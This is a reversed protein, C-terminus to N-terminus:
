RPVSSDLKESTPQGWGRAIGMVAKWRIQEDPPFHQELQMLARHGPHNEVALSVLRKAEGLDSTVRYREALELTLGAELVPAMRIGRSREPGDLYNLLLDAHDALPWSLVSNTFLALLMNEITPLSLDQRYRSVVASNDDLREEPSVALNFVCYLALFPLRDRRKMTEMGEHAQRLLDRLDTVPDKSLMSTVVQGCFAFLRKRGDEASFDGPRHLWYNPAIPVKIIGPEQDRYDCPESEVADQRMVFQTIIHRALRSLGEFTMVTYHNAWVTEAGECPGITLERPLSISAHLYSSRLDYAHKLCRHLESRGIPSRRDRAEERFFSAAVYEDALMRWRQGVTDDSAPLLPELSSVLLTYAIDLDDGLRQIAIVYTRISRMAALYFRRRLGILHSVFDVFHIDQSPKYNVQRQFPARVFNGPMRHTSPAPPGFLLRRRLDADPTCVVNLGFATVAAFDSLYPDVTRSALVGHGPAREMHETFEYVLTGPRFSHIPLLKGAETDLSDALILNTYLIGHLKNTRAPDSEFLKGSAMQLPM